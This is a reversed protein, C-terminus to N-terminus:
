ENAARLDGTLPDVAPGVARGDPLLTIAISDGLSDAGPLTLHVRTGTRLASDRAAALMRDAPRAADTGVGRFGVASVGLLIGVIALAVVLELLTVGRRSM